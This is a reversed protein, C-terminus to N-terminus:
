QDPFGEQVFVGFLGIQGESLATATPYMMGSQPGIPEGRKYTLLKSIIDDASQGALTPGIGGQGESGHCAQCQKWPKRIDEFRDNAVANTSLLAITIAILKRM